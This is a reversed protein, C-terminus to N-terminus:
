RCVTDECEVGRLRYFNINNYLEAEYYDTYDLLIESNGLVLYGQPQLANATKHIIQAKFDESFYITVYRLFIVDFRGIGCFSNQLNFQQFHVAERINQALTWVRGNPEFYQDRYQKELGRSMSISDYRGLQALRLVTRSIDTALIEFNRLTIDRIQHQQLYRDICMAISYPEQGTACAASWIRIQSKEGIRIKEIFRPLLVEEMFQWPTKDRFWQTENTTIADIIAEALDPRKQRSILCYLEDFDALGFQFLFRSLRSEILYEKDDLIRIGCHKEIYKQFLGFANSSISREM